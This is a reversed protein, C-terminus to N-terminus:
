NHKTENKFPVELLVHLQKVGLVRPLIKLHCKLNKKKKNNGSLLIIYKM